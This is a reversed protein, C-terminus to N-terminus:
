EMRSGVVIAGGRIEAAYRGDAMDDLLDRSGSATLHPMGSSVVRYGVDGTAPRLELRGELRQLDLRGPSGLAYWLARGIYILLKPM